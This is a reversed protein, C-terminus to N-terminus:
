EQVRSRLRQVFGRVHELATAAEPKTYTKRVHMVDNRYMARFGQFEALVGRYFAHDANKQPKTGKKQSLKDIKASINHLIKEWVAWEIPGGKNKPIRVHLHKAFARLAIEAVRMLHFVTATYLGLAYANGADRIDQDASPFQSTPLNLGFLNDHEFYEQRDPPIFAFRQRSLGVSMLTTIAQLEAQAREYNCSQPTVLRYHLGSALLACDTLGIASSEQQAWEALHALWVRQDKTLEVAPGLELPKGSQTDLPTVQVGACLQMYAKADQLQTFTTLFNSGLFELM